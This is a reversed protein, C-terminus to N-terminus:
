SINAIVWKDKGKDYAMTFFKENVGEIFPQTGKEATNDKDTEVELEVRFIIDGKNLDATGKTHLEMSNIKITKFADKYVSLFANLSSLGSRNSNSLGMQAYATDYEGKNLHEVWKAIEDKLPDLNANQKLKNIVENKYSLEEAVKQRDQELKLIESQLYENQNQLSEISEKLQKNQDELSKIERGLANISANNSANSYELNRIDRERNERDWLLYNLGVFLLLLLACVMVLVMKKM